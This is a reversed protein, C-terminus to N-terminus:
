SREMEERGNQSHNSRLGNLESAIRQFVKEIIEIEPRRVIRRLMGNTEGDLARYMGRM